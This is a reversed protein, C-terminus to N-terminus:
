GFHAIYRRTYDAWTVDQNRFNYRRTDTAWPIGTREAVLPHIPVEINDLQTMTSRVLRTRKLGLRGRIHQLLHMFLTDTPHGTSHFVPRKQFNDLIYSGLTWGYARDMGALRREELRALRAVDPLWDIDLRQYKDFRAEPDPVERRLRGLAGDLSPFLPELADRAEAERDPLGNLSDFPWPTAFRLMPFHHTTADAPIDSRLPYADFDSIDQILVINAAALDSRGAAQFREQLDVFHYKVIFRDVDSTNRFGQALVEAQCNGIVIVRTEAKGIISPRAASATSGQVQRLKVNRVNRDIWGSLEFELGESAGHAYSHTQPIEFELVCPGRKASLEFRKSALVQRGAVVLAELRRRWGVARGGVIDFSLEYLGNPLAVLPTFYFRTALKLGLRGDGSISRLRLVRVPQARESLRWKLPSTVGSTVDSLQRLDVRTVAFSAGGYHFFRCEIKGPVQSGIAVAAPVEFDLRGGGDCLDRVCYDALALLLRNDVVIEVAIFVTRDDPVDVVACHFDLQYTGHALTFYPGYLLADSKEDRSVGIAGGDLRRGAKGKILTPLLPRVAPARDPGSSNM